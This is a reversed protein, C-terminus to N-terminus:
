AVSQMVDFYVFAVDIVMKDYLSRYILGPVPHGVMIIIIIKCTNLDFLAITGLVYSDEVGSSLIYEFAENAPDNSFSVSFIVDGQSM